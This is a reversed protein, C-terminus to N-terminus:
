AHKSLFDLFNGSESDGTFESELLPVIVVREACVGADVPFCYANGCGDDAFAVFKGLMGQPQRDGMYSRDSRQLTYLDVSGFMGTWYRQLFWVYDAPFKAQFDSEAAAIGSRDLGEKNRIGYEDDQEVFREFRKAFEVKDM